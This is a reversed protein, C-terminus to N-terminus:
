TWKKKYLYAAVIIGAAVVISPLLFNYENVVVDPYEHCEFDAGCYEIESCDANSNCERGSRIFLYGLAVILIVVVVAIIAASGKKDM